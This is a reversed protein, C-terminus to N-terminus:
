KLYCKKDKLTRVARQLEPDDGARKELTVYFSAADDINSKGKSHTIIEELLANFDKIGMASQDQLFPIKYLTHHSFDYEGKENISFTMVLNVYRKLEVSIGRHKGSAITLFAAMVLHDAPDLDGKSLSALRIGHIRLLKTLKAEIKLPSKPLRKFVFQIGENKSHHWTHEAGASAITKAACSQCIARIRGFGYKHSLTFFGSFAKKLDNASVNDQNTNIIRKFHNLITREDATLNNAQDLRYIFTDLQLETPMSGNPNINRLASLVNSSLEEAVNPAAGKTKLFKTLANGTSTIIVDVIKVPSAESNITAVLAIITMLLFFRSKM